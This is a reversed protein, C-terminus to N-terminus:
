LNVKPMLASASPVVKVTVAAVGVGGAATAADTAVAKVARDVAKAALDKPAAKVPSAALATAMATAAM